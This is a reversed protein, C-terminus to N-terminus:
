EATVWGYGREELHDVLDQDGRKLIKGDMMIFVTDPRIYELIRKYHTIILITKKEGMFTNVGDSVIRLADIDLGSDTEDLVAVRPDLVAMQLIESKKKEGGSFGENLYRTLFKKDIKLLDMKEDLLRKFEILSPKAGKTNELASMLFNIVTIGPIEYPYQFSLFLGKQARENPELETIDEGDLFIQGSTIEYKPHGMLTNALTSKGSGNPGMLAHVKGEELKLSLGKIIEKGEIAVHLDKIELVM